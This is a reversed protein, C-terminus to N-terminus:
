NSFAYPMGGANQSARDAHGVAKGQVAWMASLLIGVGAGGRADRLCIAWGRQGAANFAPVPDIGRRWVAQMAEPGHSRAAVAGLGSARAPVYRSADNGIERGIPFRYGLGFNHSLGCLGAFLPCPSLKFYIKTM